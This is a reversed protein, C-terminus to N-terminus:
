GANCGHIWIQGSKFADAPHVGVGERRARVKFVEGGFVTELNDMVDEVRRLFLNLPLVVVKEWVILDGERVGEHFERVLVYRVRLLVSPVREEPSPSTYFYGTPGEAEGEM